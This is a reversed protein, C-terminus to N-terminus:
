HFRLEDLRGSDASRTGCATRRRRPLRAPRREETCTHACLSLACQSVVVLNGMCTFRANRSWVHIGGVMGPMVEQILGLLRENFPVLLFLSFPPFHKVIWPVGKHIFHRARSPCSHAGEEETENHTIGHSLEHGSLNASHSTLVNPCSDRHWPFPTTSTAPPFPNRDYSSTQHREFVSQLHKRMRKEKRGKCAMLPMGHVSMSGRAPVFGQM